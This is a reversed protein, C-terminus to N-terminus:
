KNSKKVCKYENFYTYSSFAVSLKRFWVFQSHHAAMLSWVQGARPNAVVFADASCTMLNWQHLLFATYKALTPYSVLNWLQLDRATSSQGVGVYKDAAHHTSIHNPHGSVGGKDFTVISDIKWSKVYKDIMPM